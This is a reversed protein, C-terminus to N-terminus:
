RKLSVLLAPSGTNEDKDAPPIGLLPAIRAIIHGATPAANWGATAYGHTKATGKPEDLMALVLYRPEASPFISVFSTLLSKHRYGGGAAKEATGTKGGVSYGPVEAFHGTGHEVVLRMLSRMLASTRTSVVRPGAPPVDQLALHPTVLLGGNVVSSVASAMQIPTVAIGHGFGITMVNVERWASPWLPDGVEPLEITSRRLLGLKDLFAKQRTAGVDVAIKAAGINSSYMYIEPLTLPRAQPHDDRIRFRGIQIPHTADYVSSLKAVGDDLAMALTFTKFTSGMEYVGLTSRNFRADADTVAGPDNPDFDPLSVMAVVEGTHVDMVIGMAGIADFDKIGKALEDRVVHQVRVDVALRLPAQRDPDSLLANFHKEIGAIGHDDIDVYGLAHSFLRGQPYVRHPEDVFGVGPIGLNNVLAKQTPTINRKLWVFARGSKLRELVTRYNLDPLTAVLRRAATEPDPLHRADAYLSPTLLNTALIVGNRDVINARHMPRHVDAAASAAGPDNGPAVIGLYLLRGALVLFCLSFLAVAVTLRNRGQEILAVNARGVHRRATGGYGAMEDPIYVRGRNAAGSIRERKV